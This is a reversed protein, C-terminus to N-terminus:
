PVVALMSVYTYEQKLGKSDNLCLYRAVFHQWPSSCHTRLIHGPRESATVMKGAQCLVRQSRVLRIRPTHGQWAMAQDDININAAPVSSRKSTDKGKCQHGHQQSPM